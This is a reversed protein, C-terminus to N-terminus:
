FGMNFLLIPKFIHVAAVQKPAHAIGIHQFAVRLFVNKLHVPVSVARRESSGNEAKADTPKDAAM